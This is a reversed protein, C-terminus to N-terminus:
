QALGPFRGADYVASPFKRNALDAYGARATVRFPNASVSRLVLTLPPDMAPASTDSALYPRYTIEVLTDSQAALDLYPVIEASANDLIIDIEPSGAKEVAPLSFDFAFAVFTVVAGADVPADVELTASLDARDRVVRLPETFSAHRFELTHLLVDAAPATAYAEKLAEDLTFDPM